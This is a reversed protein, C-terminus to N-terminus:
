TKNVSCKKHKKFRKIAITWVSTVNFPKFLGSRILSTKCSSDSIFESIFSSVNFNLSSTVCIFFTSASIAITFFTLLFSTLWSILVSCCHQALGWYELCSHKSTTPIGVEIGLLENSVIIWPKKIFKSHMDLPFVNLCTM